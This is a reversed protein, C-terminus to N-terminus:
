IIIVGIAVTLFFIAIIWLMDVNRKPIIKYPNDQKVYISTVANKKPKFLSLCKEYYKVDNITYEYYATYSVSGDLTADIQKKYQVCIGGVITYQAKIRIWILICICIGILMFGALLIDEM